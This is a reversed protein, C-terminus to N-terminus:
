GISGIQVASKRGFFTCCAEWAGKESTAWTGARRVCFNCRWVVLVADIATAKFM